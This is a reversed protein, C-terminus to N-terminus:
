RGSRRPSPRVDGGPIWPPLAVALFTVVWVGALYGVAVLLWYGYRPRRPSADATPDDKM